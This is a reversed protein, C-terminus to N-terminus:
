ATGARLTGCERAGSRTYSPRYPLTHCSQCGLLPGAALGIPPQRHSQAGALAAHADHDKLNQRTSICSCRQTCSSQTLGLSLQSLVQSDLHAVEHACGSATLPIPQTSWRCNSALKSEAPFMEFGLQQACERTALKLLSAFATCTNGEADISLLQPM